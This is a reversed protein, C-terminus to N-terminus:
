TAEEKVPQIQQTKELNGISGSIIGVKKIEDPM